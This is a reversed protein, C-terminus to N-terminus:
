REWLVFGDDVLIPVCHRPNLALLEPTFQERKTLDVPIVELSLRLQAAALLATRCPGSAPTSYLRIGTKSPPASANTNLASKQEIALSMTAANLVSSGSSNTGSTKLSSDYKAEIKSIMVFIKIYLFTQFTLLACRFSNIGVDSLHM